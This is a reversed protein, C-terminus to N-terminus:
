GVGGWSGLYLPHEHGDDPFVYVDANPGLGGSDKQITALASNPHLHKVSRQMDYHEYYILSM